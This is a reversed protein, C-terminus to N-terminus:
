HQQVRFWLSIRQHKGKLWTGKGITSGSVDAGDSSVGRRVYLSVDCITQFQHLMKFLFWQEEVSLWM